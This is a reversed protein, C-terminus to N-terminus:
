PDCLTKYLHYGFHDSRMITFNLELISYILCIVQGIGDGYNLILFSNCKALLTSGHENEGFKVTM